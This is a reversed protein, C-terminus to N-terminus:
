AKVVMGANQTQLAQVTVKLEKVRDELRRVAKEAATARAAMPKFEAEIGSVKTKAAALEKRLSDNSAKYKRTRATAADEVAQKFLRGIKEIMAPGVVDNQKAMTWGRESGVM